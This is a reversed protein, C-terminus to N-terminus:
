HILNESPPPTGTSIELDAIKGCCVSHLKFHRLLLFVKEVVHILLSTGGLVVGVEM